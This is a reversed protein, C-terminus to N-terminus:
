RPPLAALVQALVRAPVALPPGSRELEERSQSGLEARGQGHVHSWRLWVVRGGAIEAACYGSTDDGENWRFTRARLRELREDDM